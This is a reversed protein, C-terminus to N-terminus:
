EIWGLEELQKQIAQFLAVDVEAGYNVANGGSCTMRQAVVTQHNVLFEVCLNQKCYIIDGTVEEICKIYGLNRFMEKATM